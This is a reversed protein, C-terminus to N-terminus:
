RERPPPIMRDNEIHVVLDRSASTNKVGYRVRIAFGSVPMTDRGPGNRSNANPPVDVIASEIGYETKPEGAIALQQPETTGDGYQIVIATNPKWVTSDLSESPGDQLVAVYRMAGNAVFHLLPSTSAFIFRGSRLNFYEDADSSGCCGRTGIRFLPAFRAGNNSQEFVGANDGAATFSVPTSTLKTSDPWVTVRVTGSAGEQCRRTTVDSIVELILGGGPYAGDLTELYSTNVIEKGRCTSDGVLSISSTGHRQRLADRSCGCIAALTLAPLAFLPLLKSASVAAADAGLEGHSGV